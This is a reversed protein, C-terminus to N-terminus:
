WLNEVQSVHFSWDNACLLQHFALDPVDYYFLWFIFIAVLNMQVKYKEIKKM